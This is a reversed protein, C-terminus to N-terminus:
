RQTGQTQGPRRVGLLVVLTRRGVLAAIREEVGDWVILQPLEAGVPGALRVARRGDIRAVELDLRVEQGMGVIWAAWAVGGRAGVTNARGDQLEAHGVPHIEFKAERQEIAQALTSATERQARLGAGAGTTPWRVRCILPAPAAQRSGAAEAVRKEPGLDVQKPVIAAVLRQREQREQLDRGGGAAQAVVVDLECEIRGVRDRERFQPSQRELGVEAYQAICLVGAVALIIAEDGVQAPGHEDLPKRSRHLDRDVDTGLAFLSGPDAEVRRQLIEQGLVQLDIGTNVEAQVLRRRAIQRVGADGVAESM